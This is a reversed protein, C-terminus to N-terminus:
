RRARKGETHGSSMGRKRKLNVKNHGGFKRKQLERRKSFKFNGYSLSYGSFKRNPKRFRKSKVIGKLNENETDPSLTPSLSSAPILDAGPIADSVLDSVVDSVLSPVVSETMNGKEGQSPIRGSKLLVRKKTPPRLEPPSVDEEM